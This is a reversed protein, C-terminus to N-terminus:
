GWVLSKVNAYLTVVLIGDLLVIYSVGPIEESEEAFCVVVFLFGVLLSVDVLLVEVFSWVVVRAVFCSFFRVVIDVM